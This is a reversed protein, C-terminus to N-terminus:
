PVINFPTRLRCQKHQIMDGEKGRLSLEERERERERERECVCVCVIYMHVMSKM